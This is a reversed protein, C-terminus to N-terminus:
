PITIIEPILIQDPLIVGEEIIPTPSLSDIYAQLEADTSETVTITMSHKDVNRVIKIQKIGYANNASETELSELIGLVNSEISCNYIVPSLPSSEIVYGDPATYNM